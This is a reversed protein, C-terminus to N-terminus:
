ILTITTTPRLDFAEGDMIGHVYCHGVLKYAGESTPRVIYPVTAGEFVAIYDGKMALAPALGLYGQESRVLTRAGCYLNITCQFTEPNAPHMDDGSSTSLTSKTKRACFASFNRTFEEKHDIAREKAVNDLWGCSLTLAAALVVDRYPSASTYFRTMREDLRAVLDTAVRGGRVRAVYWLGLLVTIPDEWAIEVCDVLVGKINLCEMEIFFEGRTSRGANFYERSCYDIPTPPLTHWRQRWGERAGRHDLSVPSVVRHHWRAVWSPTDSALTMTSHHIVALAELGIHSNQLLAKMTDTYIADITKSYDPAVFLHQQRGLAVRASPHGLFGYIYDRPDTAVLKRSWSMIRLFSIDKSAVIFTNALTFTAGAGFISTARLRQMTFYPANSNWIKWDYLLSVENSSISHTGWYFTANTNLGHEQQVWVRSFWKNKFFAGISNWAKVDLRDLEDDNPKRSYKKGATLNYVDVCRRIEEFAAVSHQETDRGLWILVGSARSYVSGMIAVQQSREKLDDQNICLADVWLIRPRDTYRLTRLADHLNQRVTINQGKYLLTTSNSSSGWVWSLAEYKTDDSGLRCLQLEIQLPDDSTGPYLTCTRVYQEAPDIPLAEYIQTAMVAIEHKSSPESDHTSM